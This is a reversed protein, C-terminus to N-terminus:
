KERKRKKEKKVKERESKKRKIGGGRKEKKEEGTLFRINILHSIKTLLNYYITQKAGFHLIWWRICRIIVSVILLNFNQLKKVM